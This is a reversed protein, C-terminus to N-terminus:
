VGGQRKKAEKRQLIKKIYSNEQQAVEKNYDKMAKVENMKHLYETQAITLNNIGYSYMEKNHKDKKGELVLLRARFLEGVRDGLNHINLIFLM